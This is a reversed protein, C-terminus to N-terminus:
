PRRRRKGDRGPLPRCCRVATRGDPPGPSGWTAPCGPGRGERGATGTRPVESGNRRGACVRRRFVTHPPCQDGAGGVGQGVQVEALALECGEQVHELVGFAAVGAGEVPQRRGVEVGACALGGFGRLCVLAGELFCVVASLRRSPAPASLCFAGALRGSRASGSPAVAPASRTPHWARPAGGRPREPFYGRAPTCGLVGLSWVSWGTEPRVAWCHACRASPPCRGLDDWRVLFPTGSPPLITKVFPVGRVGTALGWCFGRVLACGHVCLEGLCPGGAAGGDGAAGVWQPLTQGRGFVEPVLCFAGQALEM